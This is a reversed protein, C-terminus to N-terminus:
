GVSLAATPIVVTLGFFVVFYLAVGLLGRLPGDRALYVATSGVFLIGLPVFWAVDPNGYMLEDLGGPLGITLLPVVFLVTALVGFVVSLGLHTGAVKGASEGDSAPDGFRLGYGTVHLVPYTLLGALIGSVVGLEFVGRLMPVLWGDGDANGPVTPTATPTVTLPTFDVTLNSLEAPLPPVTM